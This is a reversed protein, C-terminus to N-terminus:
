PIYVTASSHNIGMITSSHKYCPRAIKYTNYNPCLYMGECIILTQEWHQQSFMGMTLIICVMPIQPNLKILIVNYVKLQTMIPFFWVGPDQTESFAVNDCSSWMVSFSNIHANFAGIFSSDSITVALHVGLFLYINLTESHKWKHLACTLHISWWVWRISQIFLNIDSRKCSQMKM